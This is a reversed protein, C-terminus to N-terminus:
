KANMAAAGAKKLARDLTGELGDVLKKVKTKGEKWKEGSTDKLKDMEQGLRKRKNQLKELTPKMKERAKKDAKEMKVKLVAIKKDAEDAKKKMETKFKEREEKSFKHRIKDGAKMVGKEAKDVTKDVAMQAEKKAKDKAKQKAREKAKECSAAPCVLLLVSLALLARQLMPHHFLRKTRHM